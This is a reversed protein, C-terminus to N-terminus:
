RECVKEDLEQCDENLKWGAACRKYGIQWKSTIHRECVKSDPEDSPAYSMMASMPSEKPKNLNYPVFSKNM